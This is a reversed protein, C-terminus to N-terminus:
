QYSQSTGLIMDSSVELAHVLYLLVVGFKSLVVGYVLVVWLGPGPPPSPSKTEQRGHHSSSLEVM